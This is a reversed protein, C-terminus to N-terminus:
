PINKLGGHPSGLLNGIIEADLLDGMKTGTIKTLIEPRHVHDQDIPQGLSDMGATVVVLDVWPPVAPEHSAPAKLPLKRSGDAEILFPIGSKSSFNMIRELLDFSLGHTRNDATFSGTLLLTELIPFKLINELQELNEVIYHKHFQRAQEAGLHTSASIMM